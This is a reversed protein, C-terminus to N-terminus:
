TGYDYKDEADFEPQFMERIQDESLFGSGGCSECGKADCDGCPLGDEEVEDPSFSKFPGQHASPSVQSVAPGETPSKRELEM